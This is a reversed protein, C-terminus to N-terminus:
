PQYACRFADAVVCVQLTADVGTLMADSLAEHERAMLDVTPWFGPEAADCPAAQIGLGSAYLGNDTAFAVVDYLAIGDSAPEAIFYLSASCPPDTPSTQNCPCLDIYNAPCDVGGPGTKCIQLTFPGQVTM